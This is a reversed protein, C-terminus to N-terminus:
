IKKTISLVEMGYAKSMWSPEVIGYPEPIDISNLGDSGESGNSASNATEVEEMLNRKIKYIKKCSKCMIFTPLEGSLIFIKFQKADCIKCRWTVNLHM